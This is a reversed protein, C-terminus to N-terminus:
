SSVGKLSNVYGPVERSTYQNLTNVSYSAPRLGAGSNDGGAATTKRNGITDFVYEFHQGAVPTGDSWYKKGGTVQGLSDYTSVWRSDNANAPIRTASSAPESKTM